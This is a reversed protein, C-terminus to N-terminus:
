AVKPERGEIVTQQALLARLAAPDDASLRAALGAALRAYDPLTGASTATQM